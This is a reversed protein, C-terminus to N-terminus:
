VSFSGAHDAGTLCLLTTKASMSMIPLVIHVSLKVMGVNRRLINEPLNRMLSYKSFNM